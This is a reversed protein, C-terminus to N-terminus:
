LFLGMYLELLAEKLPFPTGRGSFNSLYSLGPLGSVVDNSFHQKNTNEALTTFSAQVWFRSLPYSVSVLLTPVSTVRIAAVTPVDWDKMKQSVYAAFHLDSTLAPEWLQMVLPVLLRELLVEASFVRFGLRSFRCGSPQVKGGLSVRKELNPNGDTCATSQISVRSAHVFAPIMVHYISICM